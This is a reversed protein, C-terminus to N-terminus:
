CIKSLNYSKRKYAPKEALLRSDNLYDDEYWFTDEPNGMGNHLTKRVGYKAHMDMLGREKRFLMRANFSRCMGLVVNHFLIILLALAGITQWGLRVLASQIIDSCPLTGCVYTNIAMTNLANLFPSSKANLTVEECIGTHQRINSYFEPDKCKNVLYKENDLRNLHSYYSQHFIYVRSIVMTSVWIVWSAICIHKFWITFAMVPTSM